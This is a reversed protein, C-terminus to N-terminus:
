SPPSGAFCGTLAIPIIDGGQRALAVAELRPLQLFMALEAPVPPPRRAAIAELRGLRREVTNM